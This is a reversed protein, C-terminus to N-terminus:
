GCDRGGGCARKRGCGKKKRGCGGIWRLGEMWWLGGSVAVTKRRLEALENEYDVNLNHLRKKWREEDYGRKTELTQIRGKMKTM